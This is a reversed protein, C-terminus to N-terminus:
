YKYKKRSLFVLLTGISILLISSIVIIRNNLSNNGTQPLNVEQGKSDFGIGTKPHITYTELVNKEDDLLNIVLTGDEYEQYKSTYPAIGTKQFYDNEAWNALEYPLAHLVQTVTTTVNSETITTSVSSSVTTKSSSGSQSTSKTATISTTKSTTISTTTSTTNSTTTTTSLPEKPNKISISYKADSHDAKSIDSIKPICSITYDSSLIPFSYIFITQETLFDQGSPNSISFFVSREDENYPAMAASSIFKSDPTGLGKSIIKVSGDFTWFEVEGTVSLSLEVSNDENNETVSVLINNEKESHTSTQTTSISTTSTTQTTQSQLIKTTSIEVSPIWKEKVSYESSEPISEENFKYVDSIILKFDEKSAASLAKFDVKFLDSKNTINSKGTMWIVIEGDSSIDNMAIDDAIPTLKTVKYKSPDYKLIGEIAGVCVDGDVSVSAEVVENEYTYSIEFINNIIESEVADVVFIKPPFLVCFFAVIVSLIRKYM